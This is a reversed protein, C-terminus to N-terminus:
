GRAWCEALVYIAYIEGEGSRPDDSRSAGASIFGIIRDGAEAVWPRRDKALVSIEDRWMRERNEVSLGALFSAPLVNRYADRWTRIHVDAIGPADSETARRLHFMEDCPAM